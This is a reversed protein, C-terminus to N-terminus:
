KDTIGNQLCATGVRHRMAKNQALSETIILTSKCRLKGLYNIIIITIIVIKHGYWYDCALKQALSQVGSAATAFNSGKVWKMWSPDFGRRRTVLAVATSSKVRQM